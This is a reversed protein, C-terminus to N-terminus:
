KPRRERADVSAKGTTTEVVDALFASLILSEKSKALSNGGLIQIKGANKGTVPLSPRM